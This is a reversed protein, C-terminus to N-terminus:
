LLTYEAFMKHRFTPAHLDFAVLMHDPKYDNTLKLLMNIFAYVANTYIGDKTTLLPTAYFGRNILSNGDILVFNKM